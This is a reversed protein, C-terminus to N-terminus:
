LFEHVFFMHQHISRIIHQIHSSQDMDIGITTEQFMHVLTPCLIERLATTSPFIKTKFIYAGFHVKAM